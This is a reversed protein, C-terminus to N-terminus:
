SINAIVCRIVYKPPNCTVSNDRAPALEHLDEM